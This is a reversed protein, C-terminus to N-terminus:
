GSQALAEELTAFSQEVTQAATDIVIQGALWTEYERSVVENWTPLKFGQIDTVRSEVRARHEARDSCIVEIEVFEVGARKAVGRWATRTISIPNVSDAVVSLGLQLNDAAINYGVVYGEPGKVEIARERLTQEITDIRVLVAQRSRALLQALTSKGTGPLGGFIYLM